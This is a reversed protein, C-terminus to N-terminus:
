PNWMTQVFSECIATINDARRLRRVKSGLFMIIKINRTIMETLPQTFRGFPNLLNLFIVEDPILGAVKRDRWLTLIPQTTPGSLRRDLAYQPSRQCYYPCPTYSFM